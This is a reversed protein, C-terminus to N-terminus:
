ALRKAEEEKERQQRQAVEQDTLSARGEFEKPRELPIAAEYRWVGQFDPDGWATRPPTSTGSKAEGQQATRQDASARGELGERGLPRSAVVAIVGAVALAGIAVFSRRNM